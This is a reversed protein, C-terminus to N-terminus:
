KQTEAPRDLWEAIRPVMQETLMHEMKPGPLSYLFYKGYYAEIVRTDYVIVIGRDKGTRVLRGFGQKFRIVAQPVSLKMFPNKKQEQLLESKAELLPHNPPQFPLRVIALCTLAEGPIDVGEWFSSTGLLVAAKADQFRRTLKSRNGSDVGQGLLSIDNGSLAEKLPEYVQRLMKYSTFLVMMRGQTAIATEALSHVLMQVFHADGVSGKLSPFDRPIVLLAQERYNFPSPLMSTLLRNNDAAEQLGLQEIMFQFSKDVSLTASTLVVSKKKDFFMEKLQASVDVPVAYLQLSKSRFQGSAEMWYVTKADDMRMFFRLNEKMTTLDKLLGTIDTILSDSQYDDQDEKVELLLKDGKRVLDGLTVYIQNEM